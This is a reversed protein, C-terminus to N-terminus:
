FKGSAGGGGFKGGGGSFGGGGRRGGSLFSQLFIGFLFGGVGSGGRFSLFYLLLFLLLVALGLALLGVIDGWQWRTAHNSDTQPEAGPVSQGTLAQHIAALGAGLGDYYDGRGLRPAIIENIIRSSLADTLRGEVGYGVEIRLQREAVAVLLLVGDDKKTGIKWSQAFRLSVDELPEGELSPVVVAALQESGAQEPHKAAQGGGRQAAQEYSTLQAELATLQAASLVHAYDSIRGQPSAPVTVGDRAYAHPRAHLFGLLILAVIWGGKSLHRM